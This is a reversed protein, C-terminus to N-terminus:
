HIGLKIAVGVCAVTILTIGISWATRRAATDHRNVIGFKRNRNAVWEVFRERFVLVLVGASAFITVSLWGM